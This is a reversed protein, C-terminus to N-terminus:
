KSFWLSINVKGRELTDEMEPNLINSLYSLLVLNAVLVREVYVTEAYSIGAIGINLFDYNSSEDALAPATLLTLALMLAMFLKKM